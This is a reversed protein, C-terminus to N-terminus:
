LFSFNQPSSILADVLLFFDPGVNHLNLIFPPNGRDLLTHGLEPSMHVPLLPYLAFQASKEALPHVFEKLFPTVKCCWTCHTSPLQQTIPICVSFPMSPASDGRHACFQPCM